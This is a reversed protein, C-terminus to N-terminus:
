AGGGLPDRRRPDPRDPGARGIVRGDHRDRRGAVPDDGDLRRSDDRVPVPPGGRDNGVPGIRGFAITTAITRGPEDGGVGDDATAAASRPVGEGM